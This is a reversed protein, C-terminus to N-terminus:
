PFIRKRVFDEQSSIAKKIADNKGFIFLNVCLDGSKIEQLISTHFFTLMVSYLKKRDDKSEFEREIFEICKYSVTIIRSLAGEGTPIAGDSDIVSNADKALNFVIDNAWRLKDERSNKYSYYGTIGAGICGAVAATITGAAIWINIIDSDNMIADRDSFQYAINCM